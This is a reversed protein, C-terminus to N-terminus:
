NNSGWYVSYSGPITGNGTSECWELSATEGIHHKWKSAGMKWKQTQRRVEHRKDLIEKDMDISQLM